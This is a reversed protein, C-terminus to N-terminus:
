LIAIGLIVLVMLGIAIPGVVGPEEQGRAAYVLGIMIWLTGFVWIPVFLFSGGGTPHLWHGTPHKRRYAVDCVFAIPGSVLMFPANGSVGLLHSVAYAATFSLALMGLGLFNFFITVMVSEGHTPPIKKRTGLSRGGAQSRRDALSGGREGKCPSQK